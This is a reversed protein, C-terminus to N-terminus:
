QTYFVGNSGVAPGVAPKPVYGRYTNAPNFEAYRAVLESSLSGPEVRTGESYLTSAEFRRNFPQPILQVRGGMSPYAEKLQSNVYRTAETYFGVLQSESLRQGPAIPLGSNRLWTSLANLRGDGVSAGSAGKAYGIFFVDHAIAEVALQRRADQVSKLVAASGLDKARQEASALIKAIALTQGFANGGTGWSGFALVDLSPPLSAADLAGNNLRSDVIVTRALTTADLSRIKRSFASDAERQVALEAGDPYTQDGSSNAGPLLSFARLEIAAASAAGSAPAVLRMRVKSLAESLVTSTTAFGDYFFRSSSSQLDASLTVEPLQAALACLMLEDAGWTLAEPTTYGNASLIKAMRAELEQRKQLAFPNAEYRDGVRKPSSDGMAFVVDRVTIKLEGALILAVELANLEQTHVSTFAPDDATAAGVGRFSGVIVVEKKGQLERAAREPDQAVRTAHVFAITSVISEPMLSLAQRVMQDTQRRPSFVALLLADTYRGGIKDVANRQADQNNPVPTQYLGAARAAAVSKTVDFLDDRDRQTETKLDEDRRSTHLATHEVTECALAGAIGLGAAISLGQRFRM